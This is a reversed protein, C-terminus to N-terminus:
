DAGFLDRTYVKDAVDHLEAVTMKQLDTIHLEGRKVREYKEHTERDIATSNEERKRRKHQRDDEGQAHHPQKIKERTNSLPQPGDDEVDEVAPEYVPPKEPAREEVVPPAPEAAAAVPAEADDPMAEIVDQLKKKTRTRTTAKAM